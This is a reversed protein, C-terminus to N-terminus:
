CGLPNENISPFCLMDHKTIKCMNDRVLPNDYNLTTHFSPSGENNHRIPKDEDKLTTPPMKNDNSPLSRRMLERRKEPEERLISFLFSVDEQFTAMSGIFDYEVNEGTWPNLARLYKAQTFAHFNIMCGNTLHSLLDAPEEKVGRRISEGIGSEMRKIPDRVFSFIFYSPFLEKSVHKLPLYQKLMQFDENMMSLITSSGVKPNSLFIFKYTHSILALRDAYEEEKELCPWRGSNPKMVHLLSHVYKDFPCSLDEKGCSLNDEITNFFGKNLFNQCEKAKWGKILIDSRELPSLSKISQISLIALLISMKNFLM